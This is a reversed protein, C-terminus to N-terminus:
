SAPQADDGPPGVIIDLGGTLNIVADRQTENLPVSSTDITYSGAPVFTERDGGKQAGADMEGPSAVDSLIESGCRGTLLDAASGYEKFFPGVYGLSRVRTHLDPHRQPVRGSDKFGEASAVVLFASHDSAGDACVIVLGPVPCGEFQVAHRAWPDTKFNHKPSTTGKSPAGDVFFSLGENNRTPDQRCTVPLWGSDELREAESVGQLISQYFEQQTHAQM